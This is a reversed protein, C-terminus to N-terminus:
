HDKLEQAKLDDFYTVSDSKTWLGIKGEHTFHRDKEVILVKDDLYVNIDRGRHEVRLTYWRNSELGLKKHEGFQIRHGRSFRYLKINDETVDIRAALYNESNRYRWVLGGAQDIEGAIAKIRVSIELDLLQENRVVALAYRNRRDTRDLQALVNNGEDDVVRWAGKPGQETEDFYFGEPESQLVDGEFDWHWKGVEMVLHNALLLLVSCYLTM